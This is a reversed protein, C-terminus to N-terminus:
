TILSSPKQMDWEESLLSTFEGSEPDTQYTKMMVPKNELDFLVVGDFGDQKNKYYVKQVALLLGHISRIECAICDVGKFHHTEFLIARDEQNRLLCHVQNLGENLQERQWANQHIPNLHRFDLLISDYVIKEFKGFSYKEISYRKGYPDTVIKYSCPIIENTLIKGQPKGGKWYYDQYSKHM